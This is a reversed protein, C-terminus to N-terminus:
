SPSLHRARTFTTIFRRSGNCAPFKKLLQSVTLKELLVAGQFSYATLHLINWVQKYGLFEVQIKSLSLDRFLDTLIGQTLLHPEFLSCCAEFTPDCDVNDGEKQGHGEAFDFNDDSFTLNEQQKSVPFEEIYPVSRM